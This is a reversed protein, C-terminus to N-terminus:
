GRVPHLAVWILIGLLVGYVLFALRGTLLRWGLRSREAGGRMRTTSHRVRADLVSGSDSGRFESGAVLLATVNDKGGAENAADVLEQAVRVPDGDYREVIDRITAAPLLDSLGDSCLLFAADPKFHCRRIEVFGDDGARHPRTGVNRFVENRRPHLMAQEESLVGADEGEGWTFPRLHTQPDRREM